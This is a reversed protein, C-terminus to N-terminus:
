TDIRWFLKVEAWHILNTEGNQVGGRKKYFNKKGNKVDVSM